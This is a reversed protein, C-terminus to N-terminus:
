KGTLSKYTLRKGDAMKTAIAFRPGDQNHRQNFRFVQEEIYRQLHQPRPAVYTGKLNRKLLAWFSEISNTHVHGNVYEIAHNVVHRVYDASLSGYAGDSDTYLVAGPKVNARIKAGLTAGTTNPVVFARAKGGRQVIGMVITKPNDRWRPHTYGVAQRGISPRRPKGGIYAEDAEVPGALKTFHKDTMAERIRHLMFWATKQTVDLARALEHSSIGNRNSALLWFAPLWKDFGIPSDEFITGVKATFQQKCDRCYFRRRKPMYAVAMSGCGDLPCAYGNPWRREVFYDHAVQPDQFQRVAELMSQPIKQSEM